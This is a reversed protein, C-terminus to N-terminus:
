SKVVIFAWHLCNKEQYQRIIQYSLIIFNNKQSYNYKKDKKYPYVCLKSKLIGFSKEIFCPM